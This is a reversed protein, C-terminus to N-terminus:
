VEVEGSMLKPLLIEKIESLKEIEKQNEEIKLYLAKVLYNYERIKSINPIIISINEFDGKNVNLTATGGSGFVILSDRMQRLVNLYYYLTDGDKLLISNIQQNTQSPYSNISVLGVTAICSVIIANAPLLKKVQTLNGKESLYRETKIVFINNHMDPITIFPIDNGYNEKDKTSPTKGTIVKGIDGIKGVIWGDPIEGLESKVMKGGSSKYPKGNKDPFEFDVFWQKFLTQAMEELTKNIENNVEIKDDLSSLISAIKQQTELTPVEVIASMLADNQVRQRGSTGTMSKIAIGRFNDSIGMYYIYKRDSTGEKERLIIYETSGFALEDDELCSIYATKGNELCPTIRAVLTDGNRFKTGGNYEKLEYGLIDRMFCQLNAMEIYKAVTKKSLTEKPNFEIFDGLKVKKWGKKM